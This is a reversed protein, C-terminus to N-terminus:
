TEENKRKERKEHKLAYIAEKKRMTWLEQQINKSLSYDQLLARLM